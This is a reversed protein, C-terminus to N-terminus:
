TKNKKRKQLLDRLMSIENNLIDIAEATDTRYKSYEDNFKHREITHQHQLANFSKEHNSICAQLGANVKSTGDFQYTLADFEHRVKCLQDRHINNAQEWLRAKEKFFNRQKRYEYIYYFMVIYLAAYLVFLIFQM